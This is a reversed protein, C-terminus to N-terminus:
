IPSTTAFARAFSDARDRERLSVSVRLRDASGPAEEESTRPASAELLPLDEEDSRESKRWPARALSRL